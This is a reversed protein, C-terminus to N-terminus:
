MGKKRVYLPNTIFAVIKMKFNLITRSTDNFTKYTLVVNRKLATKNINNKNYGILTHNYLKENRVLIRKVNILNQYEKNVIRNTNTFTVGNEQLVIRQLKIFNIYNKYINRISNNLKKNISIINRKIKIEIKKKTVFEVTRNTYNYITDTRNLKRYVTNNFTIKNYTTKTVKFTITKDVNIKVVTSKPNLNDIPVEFDTYGYFSYGKCIAIDDLYVKENGTNEGIYINTVKNNSFFLVGSYLRSKEGNDYSDYIKHGDIYARIANNMRTLCIHYQKTVTYSSLNCEFDYIKNLKSTFILKGNYIGFKFYEPVSSKDTGPYVTSFLDININNLNVSLLRFYITFNENNEIYSSMNEISIFPSFGSSNKAFEFGFEDIKLSELSETILNPSQYKTPNLISYTFETESLNVLSNTIPNRKFHVIYKKNSIDNSISM